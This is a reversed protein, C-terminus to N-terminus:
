ITDGCIALLSVFWVIFMVVVGFAALGAVLALRSRHRWTLAVALLLEAIGLGTVLSSPWTINAVSLGANMNAAAVVLALVPLPALLALEGLTQALPPPTSRRIPQIVLGAFAFFAAVTACWAVGSGVQTCLLILRAGLSM